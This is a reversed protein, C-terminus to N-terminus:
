RSIVTRRSRPNVSSVRDTVEDDADRVPQIGAARPQPDGVGRLHVAGGVLRALNARMVLWTM